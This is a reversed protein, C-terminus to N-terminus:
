APKRHAAATGTTTAARVGMGEYYKDWAIKNYRNAVKIGLAIFLLALVILALACIVYIWAM